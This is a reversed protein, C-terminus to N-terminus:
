IVIITLMGVLGIFFCFLSVYEETSDADFTEAGLWGLILLTMFAFIM